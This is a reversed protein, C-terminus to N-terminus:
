VTVDYVVVSKLRKVLLQRLQVSDLPLIVFFRGRDVGTKIWGSTRKKGSYGSPSCVTVVGLSGLIFPVTELVIGLEHQVVSRLFVDLVDDCFRCLSWLAIICLITHEDVELLKLISVDTHYRGQPYVLRGQQIDMLNPNFKADYASFLGIIGPDGTRALHLVVNCLVSM